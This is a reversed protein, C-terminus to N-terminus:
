VYVLTRNITRDINYLRHKLVAVGIAIPITSMSATVILNSLEILGDKSDATSEIVVSIAAALGVLAVAFALWKLQLREQNEARRFRFILSVISAFACGLLAITAAGVLPRLADYILPVGFPNSTPYDDFKGPEFAISSTLVVIAVGTVWAVPRWRWSPPRGDPFLLLLLTPPLSAGVSWTWVSFWASLGFGPLVREDLSYQAYEGMAGGMTFAIASVCMIWGIPNRPHRSGILGGITAFGLVFLSFAAVTPIELGGLSRPRLLPSILLVALDAVVITWLLWSLLTAWSRKM